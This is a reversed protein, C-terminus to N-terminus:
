SYINLPRTCLSAVNCVSRMVIVPQQDTTQPTLPASSSGQRREKVKGKLCLWLSLLVAHLLLSFLTLLVWFTLMAALSVTHFTAEYDELKEEVHMSFQLNNINSEHERAIQKESVGGRAGQCHYVGGNHCHCCFMRTGGAEAPNFLENHSRLLSGILLLVVYSTCTARDTCDM